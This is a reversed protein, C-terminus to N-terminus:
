TNEDREHEQRNGRDKAANTAAIPGSDATRAVSTSASSYSYRRNTNSRRSPHRRDAPWIAAIFASALITPVLAM